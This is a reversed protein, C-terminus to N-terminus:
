PPENLLARAAPVAESPESACGDAGIASCIKSYRGLFRGGVLIKTGKFSPSRRLQAIVQETAQLNLPTTLSLLVIDPQTRFLTSRLSALPVNAGLDYSTWGDMQFADAVMRLGTDHVEGPPCLSLITRNRRFPQHIHPELQSLMSQTVRSAFHEHGVTLENIQWLRGIERKAPALVYRHLDFISTGEEATKRIIALANVADGERLCRVYEVAVSHFPAAPDLESPPILPASEMAQLAHEIYECPVSALERLEEKITTALLSLNARIDEANVHRAGLMSKLWGVYEDFIGVEEYRVAAALYALHFRTDELCRDRGAAGFKKQLTHDAAYQRQVVVEPIGRSAGLAEAAQVRVSEASM